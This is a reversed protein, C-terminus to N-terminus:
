KSSVLQEIARDKLLKEGVFVAGANSLHGGDFIFLENGTQTLRCLGDSCLPAIRDIYEVHNIAFFQKMQQNLEFREFDIQSNVYSNVEAVGDYRLLIQSVENLFVVSPGAVAINHVYAKYGEIDTLIDEYNKPWRASFILLDVENSQLYNLAKGLMIQCKNDRDRYRVAIPTCGADTFRVVNYSQHTLSIASYLNEAHSDGIIAITSGSM